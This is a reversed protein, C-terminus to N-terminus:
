KDPIFTVKSLMSGAAVSCIFMTVGAAELPLALVLLPRKQRKPVGTPGVDIPRAELLVGFSNALRKKATEKKGM